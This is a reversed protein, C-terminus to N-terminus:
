SAGLRPRPGRGFRLGSSDDLDATRQVSLPAERRLLLALSEGELLEMVLYARGEQTGVDYVDVINPHRIRSAAQAERLFRMQVDVSREHSRHLTKVAARKGLDQHVGAYVTGMGGQGLPQELRYRGLSTGVLSAPAKAHRDDGM